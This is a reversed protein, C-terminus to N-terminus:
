EDSIRPVGQGLSALLTSAIPYNVPHFVIHGNTLSALRGAAICAVRSHEPPLPAWRPVRLAQDTHSYSILRKEQSLAAYYMGSRRDVERLPRRHGTDVMYRLVGHRNSYERLSHQLRGEVWRTSTFSWSRVNWGIPEAVKRCITLESYLPSLLAALRAAGDGLYDIGLDQAIRELRKPEGRVRVRSLQPFDEDTEVVAGADQVSASLDSTLSASRGGTFMHETDGHSLGVLAPHRVRWRRSGDIFFDAHGLDSLAIRLSRHLARRYTDNEREDALGDVMERFTDWTGSGVHSMWELLQDWRM